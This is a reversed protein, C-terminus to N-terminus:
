VKAVSVKDPYFAVYGKVAAIERLPDAYFWAANELTAGNATVSYYGADGKIPCHTSHDSPTLCDPEIDDLPFYVVPAYAKGDNVEELIMARDSLAVTVDGVKAAYPEGALCVSASHNKETM